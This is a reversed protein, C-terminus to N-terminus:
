MLDSRALHTGLAPLGQEVPFGASASEMDPLPTLVRVAGCPHQAGPLQTGTQVHKSKARLMGQVGREAKVDKDTTATPTLTFIEM